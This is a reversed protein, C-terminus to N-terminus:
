SGPLVTLTRGSLKFSAIGTQEMRRLLEIIPIDRSIKASFQSRAQFGPAYVIDVDYWRSISAMIERIDADRFLFLGEKWATISSIDAPSVNLGSRSGVAAQGPVLVVDQEGRVVQVKGSVLTAQVAGEEYSRVNFETGLARVQTNGTQVTFPRSPDTAVEFYAEGSLSVNRSTGFRNPFTLRSDANLWVKTGDNLVLNYKGGRPIRLTYQQVPVDNKEGVTLKGGAQRFLAAGMYFSSDKGDELSVGAKGEASLYAKASGPVIEGAVAAHVRDGDVHDRTPSRLLAAAIIVAVGAVAAAVWRFAPRSVLARMPRNKRSIRRWGANPDFRQWSELEGAAFGEQGMREYLLRNGADAELWLELQQQEEPSLKGGELSREIIRAIDLTDRIKKEEM